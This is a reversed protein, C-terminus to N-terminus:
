INSKIRKSRILFYKGREDGAIELSFASETGLNSLLTEIALAGRLNERPSVV